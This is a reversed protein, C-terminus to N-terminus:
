ESHLAILELLALCDYLLSVPSSLFYDEGRRSCSASAEVRLRGAGYRHSARFGTPWVPRCLLRCSLCHRLPYLDPLPEGSRLRRLELVFAEFIIESLVLFPAFLYRLAPISLYIIPHHPSFRYLSSALTRLHWFITSALSALLSAFASIVPVIAAIPPGSPKNSIEPPSNPTTSAM